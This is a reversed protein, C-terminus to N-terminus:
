NYTIPINKYMIFHDESYTKNIDGYTILISNIINGIPYLEM